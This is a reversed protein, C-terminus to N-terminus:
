PQILLRKDERVTNIDTNFPSSNISTVNAFGHVTGPKVACDFSYYKLRKPVTGNLNISFDLVMRVGVIFDRSPYISYTLPDDNSQYSFGTYSNTYQYDSNNYGGNIVTLASTASNYWYFMTQTSFNPNVTLIRNPEMSQNMERQSLIGINM